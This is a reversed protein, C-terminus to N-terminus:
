LLDAFDLQLAFTHPWGHMVLLAPADPNESRSHVFHLNVDGLEVMFQPHANLWRERERWDFTQWTSVLDGLYNANLGSQPRNPSDELLRTRALRYQLDNVVDDHVDIVFPEPDRMLAAKRQQTIVYTMMSEM